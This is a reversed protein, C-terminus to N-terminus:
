FYPDKYTKKKTVTHEWYRVGEENYMTEWWGRGKVSKPEESENKKAGEDDEKEAMAVPTPSPTFVTGCPYVMPSSHVAPVPPVLGSSGYVFSWHMVTHNIYLRGYVDTLMDWRGDDKKETRDSTNGTDVEKGTSAVNSKAVKSRRKNLFTAFGNSFFSM